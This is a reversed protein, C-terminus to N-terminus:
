AAKSRQAAIAAALRKHRAQHEESHFKEPDTAQMDLSANWADQLSKGSTSLDSTVLAEDDASRLASGVAYRIFDPHDALKTGDALTLSVLAEAKEPSGMVSVLDAKALRVNRNFDRGMEAMVEAKRNLTMEQAAEYMQQNAREQMAFYKEVMGKVMAPPANHAHAVQAFEALEAKDAETAEIGEPFTLGYDDPTEPVGWAKRFASVEEPTADEGLAPKLVGSSIKRELERTSRYLNEPSAFRRLRHLEKDREAAPLKAVIRERWDDRWDPEVAPDAGAAQEAGNGAGDAPSLATPDAPAQPGPDPAQPPPAPAQAGADPTIAADTM